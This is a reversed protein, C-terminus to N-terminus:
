ITSKLSDVFGKFFERFLNPDLNGIMFNGFKVNWTLNRRGCLDIAVSALSGDMPYTFCGARNIGALSGLAKYITEGL